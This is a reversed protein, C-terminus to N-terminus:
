THKVAVNSAHLDIEWTRDNVKDRLIEGHSYKNHKPETDKKDPMLIGHESISGM